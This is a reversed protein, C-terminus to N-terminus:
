LTHTPRDSELQGALLTEIKQQTLGGDKASFQIGVGAPRQSAAPAQWVVKGEVPLRQNESVLNLLLFVDSGIDYRVDALYKRPVFLGGNTIFPMYANYLAHNDAVDFRVIGSQSTLNVEVNM